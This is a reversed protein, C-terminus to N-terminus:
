GEIEDLFNVVAEVAEELHGDYGHNAGEITALKCNAYREATWTAYSYDVLEDEDGHVILVPGTYLAIAEEVPLLQATQIYEPGCKQDGLTIEVSGSAPDFSNGLFEGTKAGDWIRLGPSLPLIATLEDRKMAGVLMTALGGQSHGSLYLNGVWDLGAAYDVVAALQNMWKLVTHDYFDGDSQGHGYLEVRLVGFGHENCGDKIALLHNEEMHGTLGHVLIVLPVKEGEAVVPVDTKVHVKMGDVDLFYEESQIEPAVAAEAASVLSMSSVMLVCSLLLSLLKKM